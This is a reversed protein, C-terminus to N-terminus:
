SHIGVTNIFHQFCYVAYGFSQSSMTEFRRLLLYSRVGGSCWEDKSNMSLEAVAFVALFIWTALPALCINWVTFIERQVVFMDKWLYVWYAYIILYRDRRIIAFVAIVGNPSNSNLKIGKSRRFAACVQMKEVHGQLNTANKARWSIEKCNICKQTTHLPVNWAFQKKIATQQHTVTHSVSSAM